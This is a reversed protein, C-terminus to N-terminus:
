SSSIANDNALENYDERGTEWAKVWESLMRPPGPKKPYQMHFDRIKHPAGMFNSALYWTIDPDHGVWKVQYKLKKRIQKVALVEDLEWEERGAILEATPKSAEQGPLPDNPDKMLLEPAFVDHMTSGKPLALRYSNGVREKIQFPGEWKAALKRSPRATKLNRTSLYVKDGAQWDIARRHPNTAQRMREQAQEMNGKAVKWAKKMRDAVIRADEYNLKELPTTAKPSNWDWSNRPEIGFKLQYPAMGISSHPLTMQVRDMIPLMESWNDQYYNVYPRLRQDIYKNMIETQGDTEKHYATSLKIKVGIIRCFENWFSSVFQPGRDSVISEPTHGFRYIWQTFLIALGRADITKHCPITVSAKALRDMFVLISDYGHKDKPFEKFDMTLHQMPYEPVPLPNLFGQQKTQNGHMQKCVICNRVYRKCDSSMGIWHYKPALLQYTKTAGPHASSIQSHAEKILRTCLPTNRNVCLKGQYLLLKDQITYGEPMNRRINEFSAMNDQRIADVLEFSDLLQNTPPEPTGIPALVISKETLFTKALEANIENDLRPPGLLVRSRSDRKVQDLSEVDQERRSLIDAKQNLKGATFRIKFNFNSLLEMWRVQRATLVKTTMFYELSRHDSYVDVQTRTSMLEPRWQRFAEIIAFLEKDHIEWNLESGVLVHSYFGVPRWIADAHEQSMVGAIVGDSADTELKTPLDPDFHYISQIDLLQRRLEEFANNCDRTWLFPESPRTLITLPKAILGFNRIFQRYFGCFGLYSKVGTVTKPRLWNRLPEVKEPDVEIGKTTLIYGLYKTREVGFECKKIDAQLGADRLRQLVKAVHEEHKMPDESYILIDDLYATCFDDLYDMLVDNMYRMYTAPGNTLGFPVVKCKYTGYRTRFTTYDESEPDIRIRHFAQRIDLKTFVKAKTVRTFLEDIRPLPYPDNRTLANLKRYDICFRLSGNPKSVFLVPSAFPYNSAVIFGKDLNDILYEKMAKLEETSQRYLPTFHNGLPAELIIKHDYSRHPALKDSEVKSFVDRFSDYATPLKDNILDLTEPDEGEREEILRDIQYLDAIFFENEKRKMQYHFANASIQCIDIARPPTPSIATPITVAIPVALPPPPSVSDKRTGEVTAQLLLLHKQRPNGHLSRQENHEMAITRRTADAQHDQVVLPSHKSDFSILIEKDFIPTPPYASPWLFRNSFPDLKIRFRKLLNNGIIMDHAGLDLVVIPCNYIRRKDITLHLRIYETVLSTIDNKFGRVRVAYPLRRVRASLAQAIHKALSRNLLIYGAAGTDIM